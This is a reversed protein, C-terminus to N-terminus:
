AHLVHFQLQTAHLQRRPAARRHNRAPRTSGAPCHRPAAQAATYAHIYLQVIRLARVAGNLPCAATVKRCGREAATVPRAAVALPGRPSLSHAQAARSTVFVYRGAPVVPGAGPAAQM